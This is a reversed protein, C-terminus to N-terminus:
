PRIIQLEELQPCSARYREREAPEMEWVMVDRLACSTVGDLAPATWAHWTEFRAVCRAPLVDFRLGPQNAELADLHRLAPHDCLAFAARVDIADLARGRITLRELRSFAPLLAWSSQEGFGIALGRIKTRLEPSSALLALVADGDPCVDVLPLAGDHPCASVYLDEVPLHALCDRQAEDLGGRLHVLLRDPRLETVARLLSPHCLEEPRAILPKDRLPRGGSTRALAVFIEPNELLSHELVLYTGEPRRATVEGPAFQLPPEWGVHSDWSLATELAVPESEAHQVPAPQAPPRAEGGGCAACLALVLIALKENM